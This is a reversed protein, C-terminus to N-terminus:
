FWLPFSVQYPMILLSVDFLSFTPLYYSFGIFLLLFDLTREVGLPLELEEIQIHDRKKM